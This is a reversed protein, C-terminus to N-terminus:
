TSDIYGELVFTIKEARVVTYKRLIINEEMGTGASQMMLDSNLDLGVM